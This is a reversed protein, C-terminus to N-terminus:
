EKDQQESSDKVSDPFFTAVAGAAMVGLTLISETLEPKLSAGLGSLLLIIGRWTSLEQFRALLYPVLKKNKM